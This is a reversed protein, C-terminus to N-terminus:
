TFCFPLVSTVMEGSVTSSLPGVSSTGPSYVASSLAEPQLAAGASAQATVLPEGPYTVSGLANLSGSRIGSKCSYSECLTAGCIADMIRIASM